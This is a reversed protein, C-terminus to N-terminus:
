DQGDILVTGRKIGFSNDLRATAMAVIKGEFGGLTIEWGSRPTLGSEPFAAQMESVNVPFRGYQSFYNRGIETYRPLANRTKELEEFRRSLIIDHARLRPLTNSDYRAAFKIYRKGSEGASNLYEIGRQWCLNVADSTRSPDLTVASDLLTIVEKTRSKERSMISAARMLSAAARFKGDGELQKIRHIDAFGESIRNEIFFISARLSLNENDLSDFDEAELLELASAFDNRDMLQRASELPSSVCGTMMVFILLGILKEVSVRYM